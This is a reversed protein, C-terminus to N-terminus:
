KVKLLEKPEIKVKETTGEANECNVSVEVIFPELKGDDLVMRIWLMIEDGDNVYPLNSNSLISTDAFELMRLEARYNYLNSNFTYVSWPKNKSLRHPHKKRIPVRFTLIPKKLTFGSNNTMKFQVRHSKVPDPFSDYKKEIGDSMESKYHIREDDVSCEIRVKVKSKKPDTGSLAIVATVAIALATLIQILRSAQTDCGLFSFYSLFILTIAGVFLIFLSFKYRFKMNRM